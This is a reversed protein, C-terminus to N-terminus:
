NDLMESENIKEPLLVEITHRLSEEISYSFFHRAVEPIKQRYKEDEGNILRKIAARAAVFDHVEVGVGLAALDPNHHPAGTINIVLPVADHALAEILTTSYFSVVIGTRELIERLSMVSPACLEINPHASLLAREGESLPTAPHERVLVERDPFEGAVWRVLKLMGNWASPSIMLAGNQLFFSVADRSQQRAADVRGVRFSGTVTFKQRPNFPQLLKDFQEGWVCFEDFRMHRFGAHVVPSWGQQICVSKTGTIEAARALLEDEPHNGEVVAVSAPKWRNLIDVFEDVLAASEPWHSAIARTMPFRPPGPKSHYEAFVEGSERFGNLVDSGAPVLWVVNEPMRQKLPFLYDAFRGSLALFMVKNSRTLSLPMEAAAGLRYRRRANASRLSNVCYAAVRKILRLGRERGLIQRLIWNAVISVPIERPDDSLIEGNKHRTFASRLQSDNILRFYLELTILRSLDIDRYILARFESSSLQRVYGEIAETLERQLAYAVPDILPEEDLPKLVSASWDCTM